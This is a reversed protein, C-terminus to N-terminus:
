THIAIMLGLMCGGLFIAKLLEGLYIKQMIPKQTIANRLWSTFNVSALSVVATAFYLVEIIIYHM